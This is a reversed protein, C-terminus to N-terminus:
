HVSADSAAGIDHFRQAEARAGHEPPAGIRVSQGGSTFCSYSASDFNQAFVYFAGEDQQATGAGCSKIRRVHSDRFIPGGILNSGRARLLRAFEIPARAETRLTSDTRYLKRFFM